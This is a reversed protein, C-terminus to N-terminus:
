DADAKVEQDVVECHGHLVAYEACHTVTDRTLIRAIDLAEDLNDAEIQKFRIRGDQFHVVTYRHMSKGGKWRQWVAKAVRIVEESCTDCTNSAAAEEVIPAWAEILDLLRLCAKEARWLGDPGFPSTRARHDEYRRIEAVEAETPLDTLM